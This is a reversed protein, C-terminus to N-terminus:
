QVGSTTASGSWAGSEWCSTANSSSWSVSAGQGKAITTPSAGLSVTPASSTSTTSSSKVTVWVSKTITEGYGACSLTYSTTSTAYVTTKGNTPQSGSWGGSATCSKATSSWSLAVAQGSEVASPSAAMFLLLSPRRASASWPC